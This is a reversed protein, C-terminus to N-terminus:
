ALSPYARAREEPYTCFLTKQVLNTAWANILRPTMQLPRLDVFAVIERRGLFINEVQLM